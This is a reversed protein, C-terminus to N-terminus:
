ACPLSHPVDRIMWLRSNSIARHLFHDWERVDLNIPESNGLWRCGIVEKPFRDGTVIDGRITMELDTRLFSQLSEAVVETSTNSRTRTTM